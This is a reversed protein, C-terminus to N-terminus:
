WGAAGGDTGGDARPDHGAEVRSGGNWRLAGAHGFVDDYARDVIEVEHGARELARTVDPDFRNEMRLTPRTSGWTTGWLFRPGDLAEAIGKGAEIRTLVQAQFQPQGDAGMSGYALVSGDDYVAIPPNLTHFPRRGPTLPNLASPDLSFSAGRNQMLIGTKPLVCGSGYEWYISQIYSVAFGKNDMAGMWVTDGNNAPLPFPAARDMSIQAAMADLIEPKLYHAPDQTLHDHDTCVKNRITMAHKNAEIMAHIHAFSGMQGMNLRELLGVIILSALGQTPPPANYFRRGRLALELPQRLRAHFAALDARTVPASIAQLDSAIERAIDGRYFDDLGANRLQDLTDALKPMHRLSGAAPVKGDVLFTQAFGPAAHLAEAEKVHMRSEAASQPYGNRALSIADHLLVDLPLRGGLARAGELARQWGGIAGPVTLAAMPGRVPVRDFGARQYAARTALSGVPGCAEIYHIKGSPERVLWFGDGGISNMHPYVVALTAATAVVAEVVNGGERLIAAGSASALHHPSAVAAKGFIRTETM